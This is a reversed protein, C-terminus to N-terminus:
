SHRNQIVIGFYRGISACIIVVSCCQLAQFDAGDPLKIPCQSRILQFSLPSNPNLCSPCEFVLSIFPYLKFGRLIQEKRSEDASMNPLFRQGRGFSQGTCPSECFPSCLTRIVALFLDFSLPLCSKWAGFLRLVLCASRCANGHSSQTIADFPRPQHGPSGCSRSCLLFRTSQFAKCTLKCAKQDENQNLTM